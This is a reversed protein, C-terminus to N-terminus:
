IVRIAKAQKIENQKSYNKGQTIRALKMKDLTIAKLRLRIRDLIM